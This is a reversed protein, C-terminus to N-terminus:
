PITSIALDANRAGSPLGDGSFHRHVYRLPRVASVTGNVLHTKWASVRTLTNFTDKLYSDILPVYVSGTLCRWSGSETNIHVDLLDPSAPAGAAALAM